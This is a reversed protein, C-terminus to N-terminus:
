KVENFLYKINKLNVDLSEMNRYGTYDQDVVLWGKYNMEKVTKVIAKFDIIGRGVEVFRYKSNIHFAGNDLYRDNIYEYTGASSLPHLTNNKPDIEKLPKLYKNIFPNEDLDKFHIYSIRSGYKKIVELPDMQSLFLQATDPCLYLNDQRTEEMMYEFIDERDFMTGWHIHWTPKLGNLHALECVRKIKEVAGKYDSDSVGEPNKWGGDILLIDAGLEKILKIKSKVTHLDSKFTDDNILELHSYFSSLGLNHLKLLKKLEEIHELYYYLFGANMEIGDWGTIAIEDLAKHFDIGIDSTWNWTLAYGFKIM